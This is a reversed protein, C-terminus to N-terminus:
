EVYSIQVDGGSYAVMWNEETIIKTLLIWLCGLIHVMMVMVFGFVLLRAINADINVTAGAQAIRKRDKCIRFLKAMRM